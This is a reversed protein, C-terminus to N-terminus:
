YIFFVHLLSKIISAQLISGPMDQETKRQLNYIVTVKSRSLIYVYIIVWELLLIKGAGKILKQDIRYTRSGQDKQIM